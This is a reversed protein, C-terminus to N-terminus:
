KKRFVNGGMAKFMKFHLAFHTFALVVFAIGFNSHFSKLARMDLGFLGISFKMSVGSVVVALFAVLLLVDVFWNVSSKDM